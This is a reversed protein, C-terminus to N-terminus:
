FSGLKVSKGTASSKYISYAIKVAAAGDDASGLPKKNRKISNSFDKWEEEWSIDSGSFETAKENFPGSLDRKGTFLREKGYSGGLGEVKVYGKDGFVEFSFLNKWETWSVHMMCTHGAKGHLIAFANDEVPKIKWFMTDVHGTVESIEGGFWRFLDIAHQGQDMLQGGGSIAANARWDKEYGERGTIGYRCRMFMIRGIAGSEVHSKAMAIAPHYRHNFGCKLKAKSSKLASLIESAEKPNRALPKECLVNKGAKLAAISIEAHSDNSTCILVADIGNDQVAAKWETSYRCGYKGALNKALQPVIDVALSLKDGAEKLAAARRDGQRGCGIIAVEMM